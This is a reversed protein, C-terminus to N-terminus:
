KKIIVDNFLWEYAKRFERQWYKENHHGDADIKLLIHQSPVNESKLSAIVKEMDVVMQESENQGAVFYFRSNKLNKRNKRIFLNLDESVFWFAPSFIGIKGFKEPYRIGTYLSILGGMSSGILSNYKPQPYTRFNKDIFPKLTKAIFDAYKEGQGGKKYQLNQWPSYEDLRADEGNEIGVVIAPAAGSTALQNMTEDIGWEGSFSTAENFLNQADQMYIVPYKKQSIEYDPPLYIWIRREKKLQPIYFHDSLLKVNPAITNPKTVANQWSLIKLNETQDNGELSLKRNRIQNGNADGEVTEWSGRTIKFEFSKQVEAITLEYEGKTNKKFEYAEDKPNWGNLDSALYLPADKPTNPPLSVIRLTLQANFFVNLMCLILLLYKNM